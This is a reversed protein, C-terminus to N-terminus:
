RCGVALGVAKYSLASLAEKAAESDVGSSKAVNRWHLLADNYGSTLSEATCPQPLPPPALLSVNVPRDNRLQEQSQRAGYSYAQVGIVIGILLGAGFAGIVLAATPITVSKPIMITM